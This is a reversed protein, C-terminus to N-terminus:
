FKYTVNISVGIGKKAKYSIYDYQENFGDGRPDTGDPPPPYPYYGNRETTNNYMIFYQNLLDSFNLRVEMKQDMLRTTLQLDVVDRPNEYQVLNPDGGGNVIRRGFRNYAINFGWLRGQYLLGGNIIYPSLGQIPRTQSSIFSTDKDQATKQTILVKIDGKLYTYNGSIYVNELWSKEPDIFSLSKRVDIEFGRATASILNKYEIVNTHDGQYFFREVPNDFEKYFVSGSIIETGSPYYEVRFDYNYIRSYKLSKRGIVSALETFEFYTYPSREVFDPRALTKSYAARLNLKPTVSYTLNVSPLWDKEHYVTDSFISYGDTNYFVTSMVMRNDEYRMGGTLRLQELLHLDLMAYGAKLTQTGTYRDGTTGAKPYGSQYRLDGREFAEPTAVEYFPFNLKSVTYANSNFGNKILLNSADFDVERASWAFGTKFFQKRRFLPFPLMINAGANRRVEELRSSHLGTRIALTENFDYNHQEVGTDYLSDIGTGGEPVSKGTLFRNDPQERVLRIYDAFWDAKLRIKGISHEGELRSQILGNTMTTESRRNAWWGYMFYAGAQHNFLNSYRGNYLNKWAFKHRASKYAFNALGGITTAYLYRENWSDSQRIARLDGEEYLQEQRYTAAAVFGMSRDNKLPKNLGGALQYSQMPTYPYKHLQWRNPIQKGVNKQYEIDGGASRQQYEVPDFVRGDGFWKRNADVKGLWAKEDRKFGVFDRNISETNFGSGISFELFNRVPIDKTNIQVIGGTFESPLDPLATKNIVINDILATPVIDFSFNRRNPETSPLTAGNILVNNYRDSVGRITVFKNNQVTLGSVRKLVQAANNDPTVRIQEASIGDTIAPNNKQALLLARVSERRAVGTIVVAQLTGKDRKLTINLEFIQGSRVEIGTIVKKGYGISSIEAEYKGAPLNLTFSGDVGSVTGKKGIRISAGPVLQGNEEDMIRGSVTGTTTAAQAVAERAVGINKNGTVSFQLGYRTKLEELVEGLTANDFQLKKIALQQLSNHDFTFTWSTKTQLMRLLLSANTNEVQLTVRESLQGPSEQGFLLQYYLLLSVIALLRVPIM